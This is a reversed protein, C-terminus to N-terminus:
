ATPPRRAAWPREAEFAAAIRLVTAEDRWRGVIQLGVPLGDRTFGCPVSIAPVGVVTFAYTLLVWQLYNAMPKGNIETPHTQTVPFPPIATTPTVIADYRELFARVRHWLATREREAAGIQAATLGLGFEINRVLNEQMVDRWKALKEAHVAAMRAGRSVQIVDFVGSFDPHKRELRAGLGALDRTAATFVREVEADVPTLDLDTSWAIRLGRISPTQVARTFARTDVDYSIPARPDPGALTALMLALDGVTRAMPGQVSYSDWGLDTPWVPVLGPSPRIGVVGCFAAPVRLSGGLDSGQALPGM